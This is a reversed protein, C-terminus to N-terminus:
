PYLLLIRVALESGMQKWVAKSIRVGDDGLILNEKWFTGAFLPMLVRSIVGQYILHMVDLPFSHPVQLTKLALILPFGNIGTEMTSSKAGLKDILLAEAVHELHNRMPMHYLNYEKTHFEPSTNEDVTGDTPPKPPCYYTPTSRINQGQIKCFRCCFQATASKMHLLKAIAPTDGTPTRLKALSCCFYFSLYVPVCCWM